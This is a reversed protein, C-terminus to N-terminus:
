SAGIPLTRVRRSTEPIAAALADASATIVPAALTRSRAQRSLYPSRLSAALSGDILIPIMRLHNWRLFIAWSPAPFGANCPFLKRPAVTYPADSSASHRAATHHPAYPGQGAARSESNHVSAENRDFPRCNGRTRRPTTAVIRNRQHASGARLRAAKQKSAPILKRM